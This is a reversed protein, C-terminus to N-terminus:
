NKNSEPSSAPSNESSARTHKPAANGSPVSCDHAPVNPADSQSAIGAERAPRSKCVDEGAQARSMIPRGDPEIWGTLARLEQITHIHVERGCSFNWLESPFYCMHFRFGWATELIILHKPESEYLTMLHQADGPYEVEFLTPVFAAMSWKQKPPNSTKRM